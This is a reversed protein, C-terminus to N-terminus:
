TQSLGSGVRRLAEALLDAGGLGAVHAAAAALAHGVAVEGIAGGLLGWALGAVFADGAMVSAVPRAVPNTLVVPEGDRLVAVGDGGLSVLPIEVGTGALMVLGRAVREDRDLSGLGPLARIEEDNPKFATLGEVGLAARFAGGQADVIVRAGRSLCMRAMDAWTEDPLGQALSGNLTVIDGEAVEALLGTLLPGVQALNEARLREGMFHAAVKEGTGDVLTLNHRITGPVTTLRHPIGEADLRAGYEPAGETGVLVHATVPVGLAVATRACSVGKGSPVSRYAQMAGVGGWDLGTVTYYDDYGPSLTVTHLKAM